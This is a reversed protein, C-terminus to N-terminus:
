EVKKLKFSLTFAVVLMALFFIFQAYLGFFNSVLGFSAAVLTFLGIATNAISVYTPRKEDPAYDVLYTKRALRAGAYAVGNIFLVPLFYYVSLDESWNNLLMAAAIGIAAVLASIRMLRASSQDAIKGWIPSSLIQALGSVLMLLGLLSWNSAEFSKASIVYFPQILPIAMLMARVILFKRFDADEAILRFGQKSEEFPNRGGETAGKTEDIFSFLVAAGLWLVSAILFLLAFVGNDAQDKVYILLLVGAVLGLLGGFTSRYSLAQGRVQKDITKALVDKFSISGVGSAMSFVGLLVVLFLPLHAAESYVLYAAIAWCLAQVVAATVWFYKRISYKRISGSVILQPLLSGADKVPVLMGILASSAGLSQMIWSLTLDPSIIKEALKTLTGNFVNLTFNKPSSECAEEPIASCAKPEDDETLFDYFQESFPKSMLSLGSCTSFTPASYVELAISM